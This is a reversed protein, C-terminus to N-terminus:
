DNGAGRTAHGGFEILTRRLLRDDEENEAQLTKATILHVCTQPVTAVIYAWGNGLLARKCQMVFREHTYPNGEASDIQTTCLVFVTAKAEDAGDGSSGGGASEAHELNCAVLRAFSNVAQDADDAVQADLEDEGPEPDISSLVRVDADVLAQGIVALVHEENCIARAM